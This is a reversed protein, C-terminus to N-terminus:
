TLAMTYICTHYSSDGIDRYNTGNEPYQGIIREPGGCQPTHLRDKIIEKEALMPGGKEGSLYRHGPHIVFQVLFDGKDRVPDADVM